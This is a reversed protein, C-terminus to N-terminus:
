AKQSVVPKVKAPLNRNFSKDHIKSTQLTPQNDLYVASLVSIIRMEPSITPPVLAKLAEAKAEHTNPVPIHVAVESANDFQNCRAQLFAGWGRRQAGSGGRRPPILATGAGFTM